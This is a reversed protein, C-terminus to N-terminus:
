CRGAGWRGQSRRRPRENRQTQRTTEAPSRKDTRRRGGDRRSKTKAIAKRSQGKNANQAAVRTPNKTRCTYALWAGFRKGCLESMEVNVIRFILNLLRVSCLHFSFMFLSLFSILFLFYCILFLFYFFYFSFFPFSLFPFSIFFATGEDYASKVGGSESADRDCQRHAQHDTKDTAVLPNTRLTDDSKCFAPCVACELLDEYDPAPDHDEDNQCHSGHWTLESPPLPNLNCLVCMCLHHNEVANDDDDDGDGTWEEESEFDSGSDDSAESRSDNEEVFEDDDDDGDGDGDDSGDSGHNNADYGKQARIERGDAVRSGGPSSGLFYVKRKM